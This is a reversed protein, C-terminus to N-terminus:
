SELMPPNASFAHTAQPAGALDANERSLGGDLAREVVSPVLDLV